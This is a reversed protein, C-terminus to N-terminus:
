KKSLRKHTRLKVLQAGNFWDVETLRLWQKRSWNVFTNSKTVSLWFVIAPLNFKNIEFNALKMKSFM